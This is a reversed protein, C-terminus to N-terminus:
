SNLAAACYIRKRAPTAAWSPAAKAAAEVAAAADVLNADPMEAIITETSPDVVQVSRNSASPQWVGAIYLGKVCSKLHKGHISNEFINQDIAM